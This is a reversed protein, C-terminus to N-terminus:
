ATYRCVITNQIGYYMFIHFTLRAKPYYYLIRQGVLFTPLESKWFLRILHFMWYRRRECYLFIYVRVKVCQLSTGARKRVTHLAILTSNLNLPLVTYPCVVLVEIHVMGLHNYQHHSFTCLIIQTHHYVKNELYFIIQIPSNLIQIFFNYTTVSKKWADFTWMIHVCHAIKLRWLNVKKWFWM